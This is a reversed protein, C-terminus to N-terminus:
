RIALSYPRSAQFGAPGEQVDQNYKQAPETPEIVCGFGHFEASVTRQADAVCNQVANGYLHTVECPWSM